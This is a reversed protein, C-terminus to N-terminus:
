HKADNQAEQWRLYSIMKNQTADAASEHAVERPPREMYQYQKMPMGTTMGQGALPVYFMNHNNKGTDVLVLRSRKMANSITDLYMRTGTAEPHKNYIPLLANFGAIGGKAELVLKDKQAEAEQLIRVAMGQAIPVKRNAYSTAENEIRVKDERAKIVDDFASKVADPATAPQMAVDTITLGLKYRNVLIEIEKRVGDRVKARGKTLIQNLQSHGIVQRVASDVIQKLSKEPNIVNFLYNKLNGIKYQVVFAVSVINEGSTLMLTSLSTAKVRDVNQVYKTEIIRPYWHIGSDVTRSYKGFRLIIGHEAPQVIFIGSLAWMAIVLITGGLAFPWYKVNQGNGSSKKSSTQNSNGSPKKEGRLINGLKKFIEDLDPPGEQRLKNIGSSISSIASQLM